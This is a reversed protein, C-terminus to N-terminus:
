INKESDIEIKKNESFKYKATFIMRWSSSGLPLCKAQSTKRKGTSDLGLLVSLYHIMFYIYAHAGIPAPNRSGPLRAFVLTYSGVWGDWDYNIVPFTVTTLFCVFALYSFVAIEVTFKRSM